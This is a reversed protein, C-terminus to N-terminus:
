STKHNSFIIATVVGEKQAALHSQWIAGKEHNFLGMALHFDGWKSGQKGLPLLLYTPAHVWKRQDWRPWCRPDVYTLFLWWSPKFSIKDLSKVQIANYSCQLSVIVLGLRFLWDQMLPSKTPEPNRNKPWKPLWALVSFVFKPGIILLKQLHKEM